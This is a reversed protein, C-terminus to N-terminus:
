SANISTTSSTLLRPTSRPRSIPCSRRSCGALLLGVVGVPLYQLVSPLLEEFDPTAQGHLQPMFFVLALVTIGAIMFYRPFMLVVNVMGSMLSAERTNRTALIRQMDYNPAPGALSAMVSQFFMLGFIISFLENGDQQHGCQGAAPDHELGSWRTASFHIPGVKPVVAKIM